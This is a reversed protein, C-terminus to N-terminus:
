FLKKNYKHKRLKLQPGDADERSKDGNRIILQDIQQDSFIHPALQRIYM